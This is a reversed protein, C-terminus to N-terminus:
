VWLLGAECVVGRRLRNGQLVGVWTGFPAYTSAQGTPEITGGEPERDQAATVLRVETAPTSEPAKMGGEPGRPTIRWLEMFNRLNGETCDVIGWAWRWYSQTTPDYASKDFVMVDRGLAVAGQQWLRHQAPTLDAFFPDSQGKVSSWRPEGVVIEVDQWDLYRSLSMATVRSAGASGILDTGPRFVPTASRSLSLVELYDCSLRVGGGGVGIAKYPGGDPHAYAVVLIARKLRPDGRDYVEFTLRSTPENAFQRWVREAKALIEEDTYSGRGGGVARYKAFEASEVRGDSLRFKAQDSGWHIRVTGRPVYVSVAPEPDLTFLHADDPNEPSRGFYDRAIDQMQRVFHDRGWPAFVEEPADSLREFRLFQPDQPAGAATLSLALALSLVQVM